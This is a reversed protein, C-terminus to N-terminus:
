WGQTFVEVTVGDKMVEVRNGEQALNYALELAEERGKGILCLDMLGSIALGYTKQFKLYNEGYIGTGVAFDAYPIGKVTKSM